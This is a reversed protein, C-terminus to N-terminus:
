GRIRLHQPQGSHQKHPDVIGATDVGVERTYAPTNPALFEANNVAMVRTYAPMASASYAPILPSFRVSQTQQTGRTVFCSRSRAMVTMYKQGRIRLHLCPSAPPHREVFAMVTISKRGRIRLYLRLLRIANSSRPACFVHAPVCYVCEERTYAPTPVSFCVSPTRRVGDSESIKVPTYAPAPSSFCVCPARRIGDCDYIGARM